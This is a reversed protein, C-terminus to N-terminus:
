WNCLNTHRIFSAAYQNRGRGMMIFVKYMATNTLKSWACKAKKLKHVVCFIIIKMASRWIAILAERYVIKNKVKRLCLSWKKRSKSQGSLSM